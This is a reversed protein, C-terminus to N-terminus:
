PENTLSSLHGIATEVNKQYSSFNAYADSTITTVVNGDSFQIAATALLGRVAIFLNENKKRTEFFKSFFSRQRRFYSLANWIGWISASLPPNKLQYYESLPLLDTIFEDTRYRNGPDTWRLGTFEFVGAKAAPAFLANVLKEDLEVLARAIQIQAKIDDLM